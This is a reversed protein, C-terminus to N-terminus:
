VLSHEPAVDQDLDVVQVLRNCDPQQLFHSVTTLYISKCDGHAKHNLGKSRSLLCHSMFLRSAHACCTIGKALNLDEVQKYQESHM